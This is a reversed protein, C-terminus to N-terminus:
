ADGGEISALTTRAVKRCALAGLFGGGMDVTAIRRLVEVARERERLARLIAPLADHVEFAAELYYATAPMGEDLYWCIPALMARERNLINALAELKDTDIM